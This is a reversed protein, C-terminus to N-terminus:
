ATKMFDLCDAKFGERHEKDLVRYKVAIEVMEELEDAGGISEKWKKFVAHEPKLLEVVQVVQSKDMGGVSPAASGSFGRRSEDIWSGGRAMSHQNFWFDLKPVIKQEPRGVTYQEDMDLAMLILPFTRFNRVSEIINSATFYWASILRESNPPNAVPEGLFLSKVYYGYKTKEKKDMRGRINTYSESKERDQNNILNKIDEKKEEDILHKGAPTVYLSRPDVEFIWNDVMLFTIENEGNKAYHRIINRIDRGPRIEYCRQLVYRINEEENNGQIKKATKDGLVYNNVVQQNNNVNVRQLDSDRESHFLGWTVAEIIRFDNILKEANNPDVKKYIDPDIFLTPVTPWNPGNTPTLEAPNGSNTPQQKKGKKGLFRRENTLVEQRRQDSEKRRRTEGKRGVTLVVKKTHDGSRWQPGDGSVDQSIVEGTEIVQIVANWLHLETEIGDEHLKKLLAERFRQDSGVDCAVVTITQIKESIRSTNQIIRAVDKYTYGSIRMEGSHDRAGHGVLVLSSYESLVVPQGKVQQVRLQPGVVHVSSVAPHKEYLSAASTRVVDDDELMLIQQHDFELIPDVLSNKQSLLYLIPKQLKKRNRKDGYKLRKRVSYKILLYSYADKKNDRRTEIVCSGQCITTITENDIFHTQKLLEKENKYIEKGKGRIRSRIKTYSESYTLAELVRFYMKFEKVKDTDITGYIHSIVDDLPHKQSFLYLIPKQLKKRNRKDGYILSKRVPYKILLNSYADKKNDRGTEIVYSGQCITTITENDIFHTQKLLEKVNKGKIEKRKGILVNISNLEKVCVKKTKQQISYFLIFKTHFAQNERFIFSLPSFCLSTNKLAMGNLEVKLWQARLIDKQYINLNQKNKDLRRNDTSLYSHKRRDVKMKKKRQRWRTGRNAHNDFRRQQGDASVNQNIIMEPETVEVSKDMEQWAARLLTSIDFKLGRPGCYYLKEKNFMVSYFPQKLEEEPTRQTVM